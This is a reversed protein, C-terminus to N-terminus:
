KIKKYISYIHVNDITLKKLIKFSKPILDNKDYSKDSKYIFNDYIYDANKYNQGSFILKEKYKEELLDRGNFFPTWSVNAVVIKKKNKSDFLITKLADARSLSPTDVQFKKVIKESLINNFYLSQYPHFKVNEFILFIASILLLLNKFKFNVRSKLYIILNFLGFISIYVWYIHLFYFHRWGSLMAVNFFIAYIFFSYFSILIFIDKKENRSKWVDCAVPKEDKINTLRNLLRKLGLFSGAIFLITIFLPTSIFIWTPLYSRPLYNMFYYHGNFLLKLNMSYFFKSFWDAFEFINLEWMYPYHLYLILVYLFIIKLTLKIFSKFNSKNSIYEIFNFFIFLIPLYIGMIRTSTALACFFCFFFLNKFNAKEFYNFLFSISITLLSLFLIDKNNFFSDGFIRPTLIYIFLGFIGLYFNFRKFLIKFFFISSIFFIFFNFFHRIEFYTKSNNINFLIEIFATPLDFIIGYFNFFTIKPLSPDILLINNYKLSAAKKLEIFNTSALLNDLWYFGNQRQFHEEIGIGFDKYIYLGFFFYITFILILIYKENRKIM